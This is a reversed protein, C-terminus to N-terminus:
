RMGSEGYLLWMAPYGQLWLPFLPNLRYAVVNETGANSSGTNPGSALSAQRPLQDLRKRESGDPNIGNTAMGPTDKWDRSSSTVWGSLQAQGTLALCKNGKSDRQYENGQANMRTPTAWGSLMAATPLDIFRAPRNLAGAETRTGKEGDVARPGPWGTYGKDSTRPARARLALISRGSALVWRKWTLRYEMSGYEAMRERFRSELCSQLDASTLLGDSNLGCIDSTKTALASEPALSHSAPAAERGSRLTTLGDPLNSLSNGDRSERSSTRETCERFTTQRWMPSQVTTM